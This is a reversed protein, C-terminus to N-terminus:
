TVGLRPAVVGPSLCIHRKWLPKRVQRIIRKRTQPLKQVGMGGATRGNGHGDALRAMRHGGKDARDEGGIDVTEGAVGGIVAGWVKEVGDGSPELAAVFNGEGLVLDHDQVARAFAQEVGGEGQRRFGFGALGGGDQDGIRKVLGIGDGGQGDPGLRDIDGGSGGGSVQGIVGAQGGGKQVADGNSVKAGGRVGLTGDGRGGVQFGQEAEGFLVIEPDKGIFAVGLDVAGGGRGADEFDGGCGMGVGFPNEGKMGQRFAGVKGTQAGAKDCAAGGRDGLDAFEAGKGTGGQRGGQLFDRLRRPLILRMDGGAAGLVLVLEGNGVLDELAQM